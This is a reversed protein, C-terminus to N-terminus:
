HEDTLTKQRPRRHFLLYSGTVGVWVGFLFIIFVLEADISM